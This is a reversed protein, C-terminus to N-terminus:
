PERKWRCGTCAPDRLGAPSTTYQCDTTTAHPVERWTPALIVSADSEGIAQIVISEDGDPVIRAKGLPPRNHCGHLKV